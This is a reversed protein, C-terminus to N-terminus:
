MNSNKHLNVKEDITIEKINLRWQGEIVILISTYIFTAVLLYCCDNHNLYFVELEIIIAYNQHDMRHMLDMAAEMDIQIINM